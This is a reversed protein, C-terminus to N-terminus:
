TCLVFVLKVQWPCEGLRCEDGGVIRTIVHPNKDRAENAPSITPSETTTVIDEELVTGNISPVDEDSTVSSNDPPSIVSRKKRKVFVRGCPYKVTFDLIYSNSISLLMLM